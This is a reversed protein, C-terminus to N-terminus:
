GRRPIKGQLWAAIDAPISSSNVGVMVALGASPLRELCIDASELDLPVLILPKRTLIKEAVALMKELPPGGLTHELTLQIATLEASCLLADVHRFETSHMHFSHYPFRRFIEADCPFVFERYMGPSLLTSVDNQPTVAKGPAWMKMRTCFGGHYPEIENLVAEATAIWLGTLEHLARSVQEPEDAFDLCMQEPTRLAALIDLPGRMQPLAVPFRGASFRVLARTFEVLKRLWPNEPDFHFPARSRYDELTPTAWLSGPHAVVKCGAIAEMWPIGFAPTFPQISDSVLRSDEQYWTEIFPFFMAPEIQDPTIEQDLGVQELMAPLPPIDPEWLAGILPRDVPQRM